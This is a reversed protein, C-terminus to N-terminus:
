LPRGPDAHDITFKPLDIPRLSNLWHDLWIGNAGKVDLVVATVAYTRLLDKTVEEPKTQPGWTVFVFGGKELLNIATEDENICFIVRQSHSEKLERAVAICRALHGLGVDKGAHTIIAVTSNRETLGKQHVHANLLKIHPKEDILNVVDYLDVIDGNELQSYLYNMFEFDALTDVSMRFDQRQFATEPVIEVGAFTAVEDCLVSGPHEKHFWTHSLEDLRQWAATTFFGLGEHLCDYKSKDSFLHDAGKQLLTAIGRQIFAPHILPCDGSVSVLHTAGFHQAARAIRGTVDNEDDEFFTEVGFQKVYEAMVANEERTATALVIKDLLKVRLLRRIIHAIMPKGNILRMQKGPLRSSTMRAIIIAIVNSKKM